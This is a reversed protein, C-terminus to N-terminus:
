PVMRFRCIPGEINPDPESRCEFHICIGDARENCVVLGLETDCDCPQGDGVKEPLCGALALLTLPVLRHLLLAIRASDPM